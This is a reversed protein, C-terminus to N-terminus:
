LCAGQGVGPIGRERERELFLWRKRGRENELREKIQTKSRIMEM